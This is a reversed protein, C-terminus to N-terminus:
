GLFNAHESHRLATGNRNSPGALNARGGAPRMVAVNPEPTSRRNSLAGKAPGTPHSLDIQSQQPAFHSRRQRSVGVRQAAAPPNYHQYANTTETLGEAQVRAWQPDQATANRRAVPQKYAAAHHEQLLYRFPTEQDM